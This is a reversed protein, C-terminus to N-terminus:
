KSQNSKKKIDISKKDINLYSQNFDYFSFSHHSVQKDLPPLERWDGYLTTLYEDPKEVGYFMHNEFEYLTPKGIISRKMLNHRIDDECASQIYLCDSYKYKSQIKNMKKSLKIFNGKYPPLLYSIAVIINRFIYGKKLTIYLKLTKYLQLIRGRKIIKNAEKLSNGAGDLPFIDLFIGRIITHKFSEILLTSTDYAKAFAYTFDKNGNKYSEIQYKGQRNFTIKLLREYDERPMIVDLDDDWPIFGKHRIAGLMTGYSMYYTLNNDKCLQDFWILIDLLRQQM